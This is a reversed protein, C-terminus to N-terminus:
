PHLCDRPGGAGRGRDRCGRRGRGSCRASASRRVISGRERSLAVGFASAGCAVGIERERGTTRGYRRVCGARRRSKECAKLARALKLVRASVRPKASRPVIGGAKAAPVTTAGQGEGQWPGETPLSPASLVLPPPVPPPPSPPPVPLPPSPPPPVLPPPAVTTFSEIPGESTGTANGATMRYYYTTGPRLGGNVGVSVTQKGFSAALHGGAAVAAGALSESGAYQLSYSTEQNNPNVQARLVAATQTISSTSEDEVSPAEPAVMLALPQGPTEGYENWAVLCYAYQVGPELGTPVGSVAVREGEVEPERPTEGGGMCGTGKDYAFYYGAKASSGPNLMGCFWQGRGAVIPGGCGETVPAEPGGDAPATAFQGEEGYATDPGSSAVLRYRYTMGPELGTLYARVVLSEQAPVAVEEVPTSLGSASVLGYEFRYSVRGGCQLSITGRLTHSGQSVGLPQEGMPVVAPQAGPEEGTQVRLPSCEGATTFTVAQGSTEGYENWVVLCYTYQRGPLLSSLEHQVEVGEGEVESGLTETGGRCGVGENFDWRYSVRAMSHPNVIGCLEVRGLEVAPPCPGGTVPAEPPSGGEAAFASVGLFLVGALVFCAAFAFRLAFRCALGAGPDEREARERERAATGDRLSMGVLVSLAVGAVLGRRTAQEVNIAM